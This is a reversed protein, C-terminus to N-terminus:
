SRNIFGKRTGDIWPIGLARCILLLGWVSGVMFAVNLAMFIFMTVYFKLIFLVITLFNHDPLASWYDPPMM